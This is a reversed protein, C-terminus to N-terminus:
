LRRDRGLIWTCEVAPCQPRRRSGICIGCCTIASKTTIKQWQIENNILKSEIAAAPHHGAFRIGLHRLPHVDMRVTRRRALLPHLFDDGEVFEFQGVVDRVLVAEYTDCRRNQKKKQTHIKNQKGSVWQTTTVNLRAYRQTNISLKRKPLCVASGHTQRTMM